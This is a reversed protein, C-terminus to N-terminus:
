LYNFYSHLRKSQMLFYNKKQEDLLLKKYLNEKEVKKKTLKIQGLYVELDSKKKKKKFFM